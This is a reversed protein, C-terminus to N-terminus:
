DYRYLTAIYDVVSQYIGSARYFYNSVAPMTDYDKTEMARIVLEKNGLHFDGAVAGKYNTILKSTLAVDEITRRNSKLRNYINFNRDKNEDM